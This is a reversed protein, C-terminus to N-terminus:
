HETTSSQLCNNRVSWDWDAKLLQRTVTMFGQWLEQYLGGVRRFFTKTSKCQLIQLIRVALNKAAKWHNIEYMKPVLSKMKLPQRYSGCLEGELFCPWKHIERFPAGQGDENMSGKNCLWRWGFHKQINRRKADNRAILSSNTLSQIVWISVTFLHPISLRIVKHQQPQNLQYLIALNWYIHYWSISTRIIIPLKELLKRQTLNFSQFIFINFHIM